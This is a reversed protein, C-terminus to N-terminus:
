KSVSGAKERAIDSRFLFSSVSASAALSLVHVIAMWLERRGLAISRQRFSHDLLDDFDGGGIGIFVSGNPSGGTLL